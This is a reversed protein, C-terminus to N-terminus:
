RYRPPTGNGELTRGVDDTSAASSPACNTTTATGECPSRATTRTAAGEIVGCATMTLAVFPRSPSDSWRIDCTMSSSVDARKGTTTNDPGLKAASTAAPSGAATSAADNSSRAAALTCA